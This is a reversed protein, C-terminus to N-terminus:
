GAVTIFDLVECAAGNPSSARVVLDAHAELSQLDRETRDRSWVELQELNGGAQAL